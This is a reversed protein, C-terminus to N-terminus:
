KLYFLNTTLKLKKIQVTMTIKPTEGIKITRYIDNRPFASEDLAYEYKLTGRINEEFIIGIDSKIIQKVDSLISSKNVNITNNSQHGETNKTDETM